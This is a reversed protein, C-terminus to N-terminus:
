GLAPYGHVVGCRWGDLSQQRADHLGDRLQRRSGTCVPRSPAAPETALLEVRGYRSATRGVLCVHLRDSAGLDVAGSEDGDQDAPALCIGARTRVAWPGNPTSLVIGVIVGEEFVIRDLTTSRQVEIDRDDAQAALWQHLDREGFGPAWDIAGVSCVEISEGNGSRMTTTSWDRMSTYMLGYPSTICQEAWSNLRSGFFPEVTGFAEESSLNRANRRPVSAEGSPHPLQPIGESVAAFYENTECDVTEPLLSRSRVEVRERLVGPHSGGFARPRADAVLVDGGADVAAIANALGGIGAGVVAVDVEEDWM